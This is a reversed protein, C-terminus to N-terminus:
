TPPRQPIPALGFIHEFINVFYNSLKEIIFSFTSYSLYKKTLTQISLMCLPITPGQRWHKLCEYVQIVYFSSTIFLVKLEM